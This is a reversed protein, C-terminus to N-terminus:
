FNTRKCHSVFATLIYTQLGLTLDERPSLHTVNQFITFDSLFKCICTLCLFAHIFVITNKKKKKKKSLFFSFYIEKLRKNDERFNLSLLDIAIATM